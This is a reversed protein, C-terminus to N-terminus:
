DYSHLSFFECDPVSWTSEKTKRSVFYRRRQGGDDIEHSVWEGQPTDWFGAPADWRVEHTRLHWFYVASAGADMAASWLADDERGEEVGAVREGVASAAGNASGRLPTLEEDDQQTVLLVPVSAAITAAM